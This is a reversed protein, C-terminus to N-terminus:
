AGGRLFPKFGPQGVFDLTIRGPEISRIGKVRARHLRVTVVNRLVMRRQGLALGDWAAEVDVKSMLDRVMPPMASADSEAEAERIQPVLSAELAALSTVSLGPEGDPGIRSAAARAEDLQRTLHALRLRASATRGSEGVSFAGRAEDSGLWAIVAEEVYADMRDERLSVCFAKSGAARHPHCMYAKFGRNKQVRLPTWDGRDDCPGCLAIGSLLHNVARLKTPTRTPDKLVQQVAQWTELDVISDWSAEAFDRGQHVRRGIYGPNRLMDSIHYPAWRGGGPSPVGRQNFDHYIAYGSDGSATREFVEAVLQAHEEHPVQGILDGSDPDYRRRYGWLVPGHPQGQEARRRVTRVVRERIGEAEDEANLADMATAKRDERKSLDYVQGNYCLLVGASACANRLRLYAELDRYYRSAEWAVVIRCEGATIGQIMADFDDRGRRAHRSASRDVDEFERVVPWDHRVCLERGEHLQDGVSRGKKKPDRSARGYLFARFTGPYVLHLYEPAVPM